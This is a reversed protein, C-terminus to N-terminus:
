DKLNSINNLREIEKKLEEDSMQKFLDAGDKGTIEQKQTSKGQSRDLMESLMFNANKGILERAVIQLIIPKSEDSAIDIIESMPLGLLLQYAEKVNVPKVEEYGKSKLEKLILTLQKPPQGAPNGSQGKKFQTAKNPFEGM